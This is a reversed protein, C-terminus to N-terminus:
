PAQIETNFAPGKAANFSFGNDRCGGWIFDVGSSIQKENENRRFEKACESIYDEQYFRRSGGPFSSKWGSITAACESVDFEL